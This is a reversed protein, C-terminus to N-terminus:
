GGGANTAILLPVAALAIVVIIALYLWGLFSSIPGNAHAGMFERDRAVLLVPFYTLPLVVASFVVSYETLQIPDVGTSVIVYAVAFALVWALTFRPAMRKPRYKGWEWGFFQAVNYASSFATDIAAGSVAFAIGILALVLGVEGLPVSAGLAVTGIMDPQVGIPHWVVAAVIMLSISLLGGLGFGMTANIRNLRLDKVTWREEVGGSSYFYVEYPMLAAAILGVAFYAYLVINNAPASPVFGEGVAGWDPSLDIAGVLYVLLALGMYGFIREIWEFPLFWSVALLFLLSVLIMTAYPADFFLELVLALGGVEAGLTLVSLFVSGIMTVLGAGFGLRQRVVDLVPRGTVAAVRGSMEAFVVIGIVGVIVAWILQFGFEAGAQTNFVLDGIDVFGGIAALIGLAISFFKKV